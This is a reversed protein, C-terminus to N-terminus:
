EWSETSGSKKCSVYETGFINIDSSYPYHECIVARLGQVLQKNLLAFRRSYIYTDQALCYSSCMLDQREDNRVVEV